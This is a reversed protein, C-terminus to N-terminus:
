MVARMFGTGAGVGNRKGRRRRGGGGGHGGRVREAAELGRGVTGGAGLRKRGGGVSAGEASYM